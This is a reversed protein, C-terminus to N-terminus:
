GCDTASWTRSPCSTSSRTASIVTCCGWVWHFYREVPPKDFGYQRRLEEIQKLDVTEGQAQLEAVYSEFYDGPPLEIITFVLASIILLTPVMITLRWFVYRLM